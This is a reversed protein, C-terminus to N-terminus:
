YTSYWYITRVVTKARQYSKGHGRRTRRNSPKSKENVAPFMKQKLATNQLITDHLTTPPSLSWHNAAKELALWRDVVRTYLNRGYGTALTLAEVIPLRFIPYDQGTQPHNYTAEFRQVGEDGYLEILMVRIDGLLESHDKGLLEALEISSLALKKNSSVKTLNKM